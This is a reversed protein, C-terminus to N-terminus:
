GGAEYPASHFGVELMLTRRFCGVMAERMAPAVLLARADVQGQLWAVGRLFPEEAHLRVWQRLHADSIRGAAARGCWTAYMWEAALMAAIIEEYSGSQAMGLMGDRFSAVAAPFSERAPPTIQMQRFTAQFYPLQEEVLGRQVNVLVRREAFGPARLLAHGFILVAADVFDAEYALYRVFVEAPLRDAEVDRVFRHGQMAEWAGTAAERMALHFAPEAM